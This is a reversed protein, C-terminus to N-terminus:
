SLFAELTQLVEQLVPTSLALITIRSFIEIQRAITQHGADKCISASFEAVYAVGIMKLLATLYGGPIHMSASLKRIVSVILEVRELIHFFVLISLAISIYIGYEPKVSRFQIALLAGMVGIVAIQVINM